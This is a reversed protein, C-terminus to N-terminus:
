RKNQFRLYCGFCPRGSSAAVVIASILPHGSSIREPTRLADSTFEQLQVDVDGLPGNLLIQPACTPWVREPLSPGGKEAGLGFAYPSTAKDVYRVEEKRGTNAKKMTSCAVRPTTWRPIVRWGVSVHTACCNRSAVGHPWFGFNRIRPLSALNPGANVRKAWALPIRIMRAGTRAGRAFAITPRKRPLTLRSLRSWM